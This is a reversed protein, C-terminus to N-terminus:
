KEFTNGIKASLLGQQQIDVSTAPSRYSNAGVRRIGAAAPGINSKVPAVEPSRRGTRSCSTRATQRHSTRHRPRSRNPVRLPRTHPLWHPLWHTGPLERRGAPCGGHRTAQCALPVTLPLPSVTRPFALSDGAYRRSPAGEGAAKKSSHVVCIIRNHAQTCESPVSWNAAPTM